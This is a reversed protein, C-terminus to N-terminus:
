VSRATTTVPPRASPSLRTSAPTCVTKAPCCTRATLGSNASSPALAACHGVLIRRRGDRGGIGHGVTGHGVARVMAEVQGAPSQLMLCQHYENEHQHRQEANERISSQRLGFIRGERELDHHDAREPGARGRPLNLFFHGIDDGALQLFNRLDIELAAIRPGSLRRQEEGHLVRRRGRLYWGSPVLNALFDAIDRIGQRRLDLAREEVVLEAIDVRIEIRQFAVAEGQCLQVIIGFPQAGLQQTHAIDVFDVEDRILFLADVDFDGVRLQGFEAQRRLPYTRGLPWNL